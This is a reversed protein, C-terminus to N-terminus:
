HKKRILVYKSDSRFHIELYVISFPRELWVAWWISSNKNINWNTIACSNSLYSQNTNGDIAKDASWPPHQPDAGMTANATLGEEHVM